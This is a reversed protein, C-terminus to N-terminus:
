NTHEEGVVLRYGGLRRALVMQKAVAMKPQKNRPINRQKTFILKSDSSFIDHTFSTHSPM